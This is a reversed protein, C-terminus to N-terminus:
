SYPIFQFYVFQAYFSENLSMENCYGSRTHLRPQMVINPIINKDTVMRFVVGNIYWVVKDPNWILKFENFQEALSFNTDYVIENHGDTINQYIDTQFKKSYDENKWGNGHFGFVISAINQISDLGIFGTSTSVNQKTGPFWLAKIIFTGYLIDKNFTMHGSSCIGGCNTPNQLKNTTITAGTNNPFVSAYQISTTTYQTCENGNHNTCHSCDTSLTWYNTDLSSFNTTYPQQYPTSSTPTIHYYLIPLFTSWFANM